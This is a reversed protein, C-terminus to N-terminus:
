RARGILQRIAAYTGFDMGRRVEDAADIARDLDQGSLWKRRRDRIRAVQVRVRWQDLMDLQAVRARTAASIDAPLPVTYTM